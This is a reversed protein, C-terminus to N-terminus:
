ETSPVVLRCSPGAVVLEVDLQRAPKAIVVGHAEAPAVRQIHRGAIDQGLPRLRFAISGVVAQAGVVLSRQEAAGEAGVAEDASVLELVLLAEVARGGVLM